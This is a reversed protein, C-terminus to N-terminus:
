RDEGGLLRGEFTKAAADAGGAAGFSRAVREAGPKRSMAQRVKARLTGPRLRWSPLRAGAVAEEVRRAVEFQDRGFAVACVPVGAALAKQTAGMGGHTIACSARALLEGHPTFGLLTANPTVPLAASGAPVTAVVHCPEGALARLATSALRGDDQFDSSTTVVVLPEKIEALRSPPEGPPEWFCPGVMEVNAPWERRPYEFGEATMYLLLPATLFLDEAHLLPTLGARTRVENLRSRALRDFSRRTLAGLVRDRSRGPVGKAPRLGPGFPPVDPSSVPLPMPCFSAWPGAWSEAIALAGWAAIDVLLADPRETEIARRLDEGDLDARECFYRTSRVSAGIPTRSRWDGHEIAEIGAAIAEAEFGVSRLTAVEAAPARVAISHGREQLKELIAVLPFLHGLFPSSYALLRSM